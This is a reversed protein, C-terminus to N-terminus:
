IIDDCFVSVDGPHTSSPTYYDNNINCVYVIECTIIIIVIIIAAAIINHMNKRMTELKTRAFYDNM